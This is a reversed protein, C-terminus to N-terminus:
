SQSGLALRGALMHLVTLIATWGWFVLFPAIDPGQAAALGSVVILVSLGGYALAVRRHSWGADILRQYAHERHAMLSFRGYRARRLLTLLVDALFVLIFLPALWMSGPVGQGALALAGGAYAAGAGLAGVDGAFVKAPPWNFAAFGALGAALAFGIIVSANVGTVLGAVALGLSAPIMVAPFMGDSGDMFNVANVAVFVFLASGAWGLWLPLGLAIDGDLPIHTVPGAMAAVAICLFVSALFKGAEGLTILDDAFGMVAFAAALILLGALPGGSLAFASAALAGAGLGAMVGLGGARPTPAGHSSRANPMDLVGARWALATVGASAILSAALISLIVAIM